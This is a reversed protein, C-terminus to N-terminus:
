FSTDWWEGWFRHISLDPETTPRNAWHKGECDGYTSDRFTVSNIPISKAHGDGYAVLLQGAHYDVAGQYARNYQWDNGNQSKYDAINPCSSRQGDFWHMSQLGNNGPPDGSTIFAARSSLNAMSDANTWRNWYPNSAWNISNIAITTSWGWQGEKDIQVWPVSRQADFAVSTNKIYPQILLAWAPWWNGTTGPWPSGSLNMEHPINIGDSDQAYMIAGQICQKLNSISSVDRAKRRAQAFVPFLIAALIAIIAIVVLLEILTFARRNANRLKM